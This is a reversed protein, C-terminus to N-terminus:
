RCKRTPDRFCIGLLRQVKNVFTYNGFRGDILPTQTKGHIAFQIQNCGDAGESPVVASALEAGSASRFAFKVNASLELGCIVNAGPPTVDLADFWRVVRSVQASDTVHRSVGGGSIDIRGVGAPVAERAARPYIWAVGVDIRLVTRNGVRDATVSLMRQLPHGGTVPGFFDASKWGGPPGGGGDEQLGHLMHREEFGVAADASGSVRWFAHRDAFMTLVSTGLGSHRLNADHPAHQVRVAGPPLAIRGLLKGAERLAVREREAAVLEV